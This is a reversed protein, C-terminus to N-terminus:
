YGLMQDINAPLYKDFDEQTHGFAMRMSRQEDSEHKIGDKSHGGRIQTQVGESQKILDIAVDTGINDNNPETKGSLARAILLLQEPTKDSFRNDSYLTRFEEELDDKLDPHKEKLRLFREEALQEQLKRVESSTQSVKTRVSELDGKSDGRSALLEKASDAGLDPNDRLLRDAMDPDEEAIDYIAEPDREVLRKSLNFRKDIEDNIKRSAHRADKGSPQTFGVTNKDTIGEDDPSQGENDTMIETSMGPSIIVPNSLNLLSPINGVNSNGTQQSGSAAERNEPANENAPYM